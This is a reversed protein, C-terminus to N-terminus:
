AVRVVKREEQVRPVGIRVPVKDPRKTLCSPRLAQLRCLPLLIRIPRQSPTPGADYMTEGAGKVLHAFQYTVRRGRWCSACKVKRPLQAEAQVDADIATGQFCLFVERDDRLDWESSQHEFGTRARGGRGKEWASLVVTSAGQHEIVLM